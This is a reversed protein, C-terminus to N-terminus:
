LPDGAGSRVGSEGTEGDGGAVFRTDIWTRLGNFYRVKDGWADLDVWARSYVRCHSAGGKSGWAKGGGGAGVSGGQFRNTDSFVSIRCGRVGSGRVAQGDGADPRREFRGGM